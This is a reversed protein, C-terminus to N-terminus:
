RKTISASPGHSRFVSAYANLYIEEANVSHWWREGFVNDRRCGKGDM